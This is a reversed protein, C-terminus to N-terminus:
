PLQQSDNSSPVCYVSHKWVDQAQILKNRIVDIVVLFIIVISLCIDSSKLKQKKAITYSVETGKTM